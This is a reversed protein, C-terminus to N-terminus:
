LFRTKPLIKGQLVGLTCRLYPPDEQFRQFSFPVIQKWGLHEGLTEHPHIGTVKAKIRAGQQKQKRGVGHRWEQGRATGADTGRRAPGPEHCQRTHEEAGKHSEVKGLFGCGRDPRYLREHDSKLDSRGRGM